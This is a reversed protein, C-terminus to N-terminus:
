SRMETTKKRGSAKPNNQQEKELNKFKSSLNKIQSRRKLTLM